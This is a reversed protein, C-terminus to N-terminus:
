LIDRDANLVKDHSRAAPVLKWAFIDPLLLIACLYACRSVTPLGASVNTIRVLSPCSDFLICYANTDKAIRIM